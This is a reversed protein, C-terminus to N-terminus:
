IFPLVKKMLSLFFLMEYRFFSLTEMIKHSFSSIVQLSEIEDLAGLIIPKSSMWLLFYLKYLM